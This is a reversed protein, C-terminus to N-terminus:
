PAQNRYHMTDCRQVDEKGTMPCFSHPSLLHWGSGRGGTRGAQMYEAKCTYEHIIIGYTRVCMQRIDKSVNMSLCKKRSPSTYTSTSIKMEPLSDPLHPEQSLLSWEPPSWEKAVVGKM